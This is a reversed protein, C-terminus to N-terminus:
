PDGGAVEASSWIITRNRGKQKAEYLMQDARQILGGPLEGEFIQAIGFSATLDDFEKELTGNPGGHLAFGKRIREAIGFADGMPTRPLVIAFEEGGYRAVLDSGRVSKALLAAFAKLVRDGAAHGHTDNVEKFRDIDTLILCLPTGHAHSSDVAADLFQEFRRRNAISTLPDLSALTEAEHLRERLSSAHTKAENLRQELEHMERENKKNKAILAEIVDRLETVSTASALHANTDRLSDVHEKSNALQGAILVILRGLQRELEDRVADVDSRTLSSEAPRAPPWVAKVGPKALLRAALASPDRRYVTFLAGMSLAIAAVAVVTPGIAPLWAYFASLGLSGPVDWNFGAVVGLTLICGILFGILYNVAVNTMIANGSCSAGDM